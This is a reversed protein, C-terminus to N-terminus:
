RRLSKRRLGEVGVLALGLSAITLGGEPVAVISGSFNDTIGTTTSMLGSLHQIDAFDFSVTETATGFAALATLAADSGTYMISTLNLFGAVQGSSTGASGHTTTTVEGSSWTLNATLLHGDSGTIVLQGVQPGVAATEVTLSGVSASAYGGLTWHGTMYGHDGNDFTMTNATSTGAYNGFAFGSVGAVQLFDLTSGISSFDLEAANAGGMLLSAAM